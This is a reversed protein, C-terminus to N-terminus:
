APPDAGPFLIEPDGTRWVNEIRMRAAVWAQDQRVLDVFYFNKLLLHRSHDARKLHQAEVIAFLSARAGAFATIRSNSVSHTTDLEATAAMIQDTISDGGKFVPFEVGLRAAPQVFDLESDSAFASRFLARDKLDQGAGFRYLVDEIALRARPQVDVFFVSTEVTM